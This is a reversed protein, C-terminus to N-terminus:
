DKREFRIGYRSVFRVFQEGIDSRGARTKNRLNVIMKYFFQIEDNEKESFDVVLVNDEAIKEIEPKSVAYVLEHIKKRQTIQIRTGFNYTEEKFEFSNHKLFDKFDSFINKILKSREDSTVKPPYGTKVVKAPTGMALCGAPISKTVISGAGIVSGDGITVNPFVQIRSPLWVGKGIKIPGFTVTYGELISNWSAHTFIYNSYGISSDNELIIPYTPNILSFTFIHARKGIKLSSKDTKIGGVGVLEGIISDDGIEFTKTDIFTASGIRVYRGITVKEARIITLFGIKSHDGIEADKGIVVSGLGIKVNKGIKYGKM